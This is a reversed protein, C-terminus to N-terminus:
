CEAKLTIESPLFLPTKLVYTGKSFILVDGPVANNIKQQIDDTPNITYDTM